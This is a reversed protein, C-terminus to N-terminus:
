SIRAARHRRKGWGLKYDQAFVVVGHATCFVPDGLDTDGGGQGNWDEGLHGNVRFGRAVYYNKAGDRGVPCDFGDALRVSATSATPADAANLGATLLSVAALCVNTWRM